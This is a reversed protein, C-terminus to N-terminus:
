IYFFGPPSPCAPFGALARGLGDRAAGTVLQAEKKEEAEECFCGRYEGREEYGFEEVRKRDGRRGKAAV